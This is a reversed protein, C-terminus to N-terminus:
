ALGHVKDGSWAALVTQGPALPEGEGSPRAAILSDGGALRVHLETLSGRHIIRDLTGLAENAAADSREAAPRVRISEPRLCTMTEGAEAPLGRVTLLCGASTRVLAEAGDRRVVTGHWLNTTGIFGAVFVTAPRDYVDGPTGCQEIRGANMVAIRDSMTLAEEQDHTVMVTTIGVRRQLDKIQIQMEERLKRDLAAFPEDLLLISPEIALARALAVRQQQGGSLEAPYREAFATLHVLDLAEGVKRAIAGRDSSRMELGFAVNGAVTMHPVLAYNQFLVGVNRHHVPVRTVRDEGFLIDGGSPAVLGAVMRLTTTKGCGSPGLLAMLQGPEVQLDIGDVVASSGYAKSLGALRLRVAERRASVAVETM